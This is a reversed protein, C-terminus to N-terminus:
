KFEIGNVPKAFSVWNFGSNNNILSVGGFPLSVRAM